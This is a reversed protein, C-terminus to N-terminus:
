LAPAPSDVQTAEQLRKGKTEPLSLAAIVLVGYAAGAFVGIARALGM